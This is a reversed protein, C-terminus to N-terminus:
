SIFVVKRMYELFFNLVIRVERGLGRVRKIKIALM